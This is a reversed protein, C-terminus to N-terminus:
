PLLRFYLSSLFRLLVTIRGNQKLINKRFAAGNFGPRSKKHSIQEVLFEFTIKTCNASGPAVPFKVILNNKKTFWQRVISELSFLLQWIM